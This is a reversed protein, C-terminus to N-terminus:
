NWISRQVGAIERMYLAWMCGMRGGRYVGTGAARHYREGYGKEGVQIRLGGGGGGCRGM